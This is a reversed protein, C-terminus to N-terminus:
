ATPHYPRISVVCRLGYENIATQWCAYWSEAIAPWRIRRRGQYVTGIYQRMM